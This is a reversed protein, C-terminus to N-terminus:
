AARPVAAADEDAFGLLEPSAEFRIRLERKVTALCRTIHGKDHGFVQGIRELPWGANERLALMALYRWKRADDHAYHDHVINWFHDAGTRPLLVKTGESSIISM